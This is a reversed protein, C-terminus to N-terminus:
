PEAIQPMKKIYETVTPIDEHLLGYSWVEPSFFSRRRFIDIAERYNDRNKLM